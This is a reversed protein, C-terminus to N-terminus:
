ASTSSRLAEYILRTQAATNEKSGSTDILFHAFKKKEELPLQRRLRAEAQERTIGDRHMAREIQQEKHCWTLILRDYQKYAGTEILIAAETVLIAGADREAVAEAIRRARERVAPHVVANLAALRAPDDFVVSALRARDITGDERLIGSGFEAVVADYAEAGPELVAHGLEDAKIVHCGYEQLLHAVFSKGSALGGTLGVRLM